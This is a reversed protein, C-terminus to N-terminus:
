YNVLLQMCFLVPAFFVSAHMYTVLSAVALQCSHQLHFAFFAFATCLILMWLGVCLMTGEADVLGVQMTFAGLREKHRCLLVRCALCLIFPLIFASCLQCLATAEPIAMATHGLVTQISAAASFHGELREYFACSVCALVGSLCLMGVCEACIYATLHCAQETLCSVDKRVCVSPLEVSVGWWQHYFVNEHRDRSATSLLQWVTNPDTEIMCYQVFKRIM